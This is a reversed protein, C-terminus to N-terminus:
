DSSLKLHQTFHWNATYPYLWGSKQLVWFLGEEVILEPQSILPSPSSQPYECRISCVIDLKWYDEIKEASASIFCPNLALAVRAEHDLLKKYIELGKWAIREAPFEIKQQQSNRLVAHYEEIKQKIKQSKLAFGSNFNRQNDEPTPFILLLTEIAAEPYILLGSIGMAINLGYIAIKDKTSYATYDPLKQSLDAITKNVESIAVPYIFVLLFLFFVFIVSRSILVM